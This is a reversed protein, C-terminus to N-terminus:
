QKKLHYNNNKLGNNERNNTNWKGYNKRKKAPCFLQKNSTKAKVFFTINDTTIIAM